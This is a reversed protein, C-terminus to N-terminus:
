ELSNSIYFQEPGFSIIIQKRKSRKIVAIKFVPSEDYKTEDSTLNRTLPQLQLFHTMVNKYTRKRRLIRGYPRESM